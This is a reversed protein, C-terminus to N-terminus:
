YVSLTLVKNVDNFIIDFYNWLWLRREASIMSQSTTVGINGTRTLIRHSEHSGHTTTDSNTLQTDTSNINNHATNVDSLNPKNTTTSKTTSNESATSDSQSKPSVEASDWGFVGDKSVNKSESDTGSNLETVDEGSRKLNYGSDSKSDLTNSFDSKNKNTGDNVGDIDEQERMDYNSIPNYDFNMTDFLKKWKLKFEFELLESFFKRANTDLYGFDSYQEICYAPHRLGHKTFYLHDALKNDIDWTKWAPFNMFSFIGGREPYNCYLDIMTLNHM